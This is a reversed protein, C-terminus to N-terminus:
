ELGMNNVLNYLSGGATEEDCNRNDLYDKALSWVSYKVQKLFVLEGNTLKIYAAATYADLMDDISDISYKLNWYYENNKEPMAQLSSLAAYYDVVQTNINHEETSPVAEAAHDKISYPSRQQEQYGTIMVGVGAILHENTDLENWLDKDISGGFRMSINSYTYTFEGWQITITNLYVAGSNSRIGIYQYEDSIDLETSTGCVISGIKTGKTNDDYLDTAASYATNKGYIDVKTGNSSGTGWVIKVKKAQGGSSTTVIGSVSDKSKLQIDGNGNGAYSNGAYVAGSTGEKDTWETYSGSTLGTFEKNLTDVVAGAKSYHYALSSNTEITNEIIDKTSQVSVNIDVYYANPHDSDRVRVVAEGSVSSATITATAKNQVNVSSVTASAIRANGSQVSCELTPASTYNDVTIEVNRTAGAALAIESPSATITPNLEEYTITLAGIDLASTRGRIALCSFNGVVNYSLTESTLTAAYDASAPLADYVDNKLYVSVETNAAIASFAVTKIRVGVPAQSTYFGGNASNNIRGIYENSSPGMLKVKYKAGRASNLSYTYDSVETWNGWTGTGSGIASSPINSKDLIDAFPHESVTVDVTFTEDFTEYLVTIDFSNVSTSTATEPTLEYAVADDNLEVFTPDGSSWNVKINLGTLDWSEGVYYNSKQISGNLEISSMTRAPQVIIDIYGSASGPSVVTGTLRVTTESAVVSAATVTVSAGAESNAPAAIIDPHNSSWGITEEYSGSGGTLSTSFTVSGGAYITTETSPTITMGTAEVTTAATVEKWLYIPQQGSSYCAFLDSTNYRIIKRTSHPAINIVAQDNSFSITATHSENSDTSIVRLYNNNGSAASALYGNTGAYNETLFTWAGSQGGLTFSMVNSGRTIKGDTISASTTKRNNTNSATSIAKVSGSTGNTIIYSKGAELDNVDNILSYNTTNTAANVEKAEKVANVGAGVGIMMAIALSAGIIKTLYKKM